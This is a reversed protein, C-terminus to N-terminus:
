ILEEFLEQLALANKHYRRTLNVKRLKISNIWYYVVTLLYFVVYLKFTNTWTFLPKIFENVTLFFYSLPITIILFLLFASGRKKYACYYAIWIGPILSLFTILLALAPGFKGSNLNSLYSPYVAFVNTLIFSIFWLKRVKDEKKVDIKHLYLSINDDPLLLRANLYRSAKRLLLITAIGIAVYIICVILLILNPNM